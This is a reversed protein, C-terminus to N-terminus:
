LSIDLQKFHYRTLRKLCLQSINFLSDFLIKFFFSIQLHSDAVTVRWGDLCNVTATTASGILMSWERPLNELKAFSIAYFIVREYKHVRKIVM